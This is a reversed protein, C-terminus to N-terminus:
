KLRDKSVDLSSIVEVGRTFIRGELTTLADEDLDGVFPVASLLERKTM